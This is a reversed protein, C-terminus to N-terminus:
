ALLAMTWAGPHKCGFPSEGLWYDKSQLKYNPPITSQCHRRGLGAKQRKQNKRRKGTNNGWLGKVSRVRDWHISIWFQLEQPWNPFDFSFSAPSSSRLLEYVNTLSVSELMSISLCYPTILGWLVPCSIVVCIPFTCIQQDNLTHLNFWHHTEIELSPIM